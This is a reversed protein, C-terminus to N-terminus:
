EIVSLEGGTRGFVEEQGELEIYAPPVPYIGPHVARILFTVTRSGPYLHPFYYTVEGPYIKQVPRLSFFEWSSGFMGFRGRAYGEDVYTQRDGYQTEREWEGGRVGGSEDYSGTTVFSGDLIEAGSPVPVQLFSAFRNRDCGITVRVRYTKGRVLADMEVPNGDLDEIQRFVSFGEDRPGVIENPLYYRMVAAYFVSGAQAADEGLRIELPLLVNRPLQDLPDQQFPFVQEIGEQLDVTEDMLTQQNLSVRVEAAEVGMSKELEGALVSAVFLLDISNVWPSNVTARRMAQLLRPAEVSDADLASFARQACALRLLTSDFYSRSEYTEVIDVDRTGIQVLNRVRRFANQGVSSAGIRDAIGAAVSYGAAGLADEQELLMGLMSRYNKEPNLRSAIDLAWAKEFASTYRGNVIAELRSVLRSRQSGTLGSGAYRSQIKGSRIGHEIQAYLEAAVLTTRVTSNRLHALMRQYPVFGGDSHQYKAMDNGFLELAIRADAIQRESFLLDLQEGFIAYSAARYAVVEFSRDPSLRLWRAMPEYLYGAQHGAFSLEISGSGPLVSSPIVVGEEISEDSLSGALTFAEQIQVDVVPMKAHLRENVVDSRVTFILDAEGTQAFTLPFLVDRTQRPELVFSTEPYPQDGEFGAGQLELTIHVEQQDETLNTCVLGASVTDRVRVQMPVSSRVTIPNQVMSEQEARGFLEPEMAVATVRYTTLSDPWQFSATVQGNRDTILAPEFVALPRFDEREDLKGADEGGGGQLNKIEYTVPDILLRRSDDGRVGLPFRWLSYFYEVPDPVHYDILDLVGRDVALLTVEAGSVPQGNHLVRVVAEAQEGPGYVSQDMEITVDLMRPAPDVEVEVIGFFGRPKGLDPEFYSQPAEARATASSLAVYVVPIFDDTIELEIIGASGEFEVFQNELIGAREVTMLYRGDPIPSQVMLRATEGVQYKEKDPILTIQDPQSSLWRVWQPGTAYFPLETVVARGQADQARLVVVYSGAEPPTFSFSKQRGAPIRVEREELEEEVVEYRTNLQGYVSRQQVSQWQRRLIQVDVDTANGVLDGDIKVAALQVQVAQGSQAFRRPMDSNDLLRTGLYFQAPHLLAQARGALEQNTIDQVRAELMYTYTGGPVGETGIASDLSASGQADLVGDGSAILERGSMERPGFVYGQWRTNPPAYRVSQRYLYHSVAGGSVGGGSLYDAHVVFSFGDGHILTQPPPNVSVSFAAPQFHAVQFSRSISHRSGGSRSYEIWYEGPELDEPLAFSGYSGGMDSLTGSSRWVTQDRNGATIRYNGQHASYRNDQLDRDIIRFTVEEGPRYLGRDTFVFSVPRVDFAHVPSVAGHIGSRYPSHAGSPRFAIRDSGHQVEIQVKETYNSYMYQLFDGPELEFVALGDSDTQEVKPFDSGNFFGSPMEGLALPTAHTTLLVDADAVPEGTSLSQVWVLVKNAAYRTTVGMDTVQLQLDQRRWRWSRTDEPDYFYWSVGVFGFGDDNLYQDLDVVEFSKINPQIHSIDYPVLSDPSFHRFPDTISGINWIGEKPNQLEFIIKPDFQAELMRSGTNPTYFYSAAAPVAVTLDQPQGLQRGYVDKINASVEVTYTSEYEVPLNRLKIASGYVQVYPNIDDVPLSVSLVENWDQDPDLAHSFQLFAPNSDQATSQAYYYSGVNLYRFVFPRITHFTRTSISERGRYEPRSRAGEMLRVTMVSDAPLDDELQLVVTRELRNQDTEDQPRRLSFAYDEGASSSLQIFEAIFDMDVPYSFQITIDRVSTPVENPDIAETTEPSGPYMAAIDLTERFFRFTEDRGLTAGSLAPLDGAIRVEYELQAELPDDPQFSLIRSGMWRYTGSIDPEIQMLANEHMPQGLRTLPVMPHNFVVFITPRRVETPLEGEPGFSVVAFEEDPAKIQAVGENGSSSAVTFYQVGLPSDMGRGAFVPAGVGPVVPERRDIIASDAGDGGCSGLFLYIFVVFIYAFRKGIARGM